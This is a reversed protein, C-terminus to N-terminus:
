RSLGHTSMNSPNEVIIEVMKDRSRMGRVITIRSKPVNFHESLIELLRKNAQGGVAKENVRIEFSTEGTETVRAEKANPTVRVTILM